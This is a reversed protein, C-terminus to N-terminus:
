RWSSNTRTDPPFSLMHRPMGAGIACGVKQVRSIFRRADQRSRNVLSTTRALAVAELGDRSTKSIIVELRKIEAKYQAERALWEQSMAKFRDQEHGRTEKAGVLDKELSVTKERLRAFAEILHLIYSNYEVPIPDLVPKTMMVVGLTEIMQEPSPNHWVRDGERIILDCRESDSGSGPPPSIPPSAVRGLSLFSSVRRVQRAPADADDGYRTTGARSRASRAPLWGLDSM